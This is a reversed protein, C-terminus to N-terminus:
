GSTRGISAIFARRWIESLRGPTPLSAPGPLSPQAGVVVRVVQVLVLVEGQGPQEQGLNAGAARRGSASVRGGEGSDVRQEAPQVVRGGVGSAVAAQQLDPHQLGEGMVGAAVTVRRETTRPWASVSM